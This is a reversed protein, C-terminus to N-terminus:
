RRRSQAKVFKKQDSIAKKHKRKLQSYLKGFSESPGLGEGLVDMAALVNDDGALEGYRDGIVIAQELAKDLFAVQDELAIALRDEAALLKEEQDRIKWEFEVEKRKKDQWKKLSELDGATVAWGQDTVKKKIKDQESDLVKRTAQLRKKANELQKRLKPKVQSRLKAIGSEYERAQEVRKPVADEGALIWIGDRKEFSRAQLYKAPEKAPDIGEVIPIDLDTVFDSKAFKVKALNVELKQSDKSAQKIENRMVALARSPGLRGGAQELAALVQADAKLTRYQKHIQSALGDATAFVQAFQDIYKQREAVRQQEGAQAPLWKENVFKAYEPFIRKNFDDVEDPIGFSRYARVAQELHFEHDKKKWEKFTTNYTDRIAVVEPLADFARLNALSAKLMEVTKALQAQDNLVWVVGAKDEERHLGRSELLKAPDAAQLLAPSLLSGLSVVALVAMTLVYQPNVFPCVLSLACSPHKM